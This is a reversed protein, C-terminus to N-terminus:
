RITIGDPTFAAEWVETLGIFTDGQSNPANTNAEFEDVQYLSRPQYPTWTDNVEVNDRLRPAIDVRVRGNADTYAQSVAMHM